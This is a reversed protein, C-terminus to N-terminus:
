SICPVGGDVIRHRVQETAKTVTERTHRAAHGRQQRTARRM